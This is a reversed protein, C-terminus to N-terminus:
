ALQNSIQARLRIKDRMENIQTPLNGGEVMRAPKAFYYGQAKTVAHQYLIDAEEVREIGEAIVECEIDQAFQMLAKLLAQKIKGQDINQILSRDIKIMDPILESISQLSAYGAGADDLAFRFGLKRYKGMVAAMERYDRISHRETIEFVIQKPKISPYLSLYDVIDDYFKRQSLTLSTINIFVQERISREVIEKFAKKIVIFELIPLLEAQYAFEFLELPKYFPTNVPGRTLVEWGFIDGSHLDMIPQTLVHISEKDMIDSLENRTHSFNSPLKKTAIAQAYHYAVSIALKTSIPEKEFTFFGVGFKIQGTIRLEAKEKLRNALEDRLKLCQYHMEMYTITYPVEMFIGYEEGHFHRLGVIHEDKFYAPLLQIIHRSIIQEAATLQDYLGPYLLQSFNDVNFLVLACRRNRKRLEDLKLLLPDDMSFAASIAPMEEILNRLRARNKARMRWQRIKGFLHM